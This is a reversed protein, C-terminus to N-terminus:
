RGNELSARLPFVCGHCRPITPGTRASRSIRASRMPFWTERAKGWRRRPPMRCPLGDRLRLRHGPVLGPHGVLAAALAMRGPTKYRDCLADRSVRVCAWRGAADDDSRGRVPVRVARRDALAGDQHGGWARGTRDLAGDRGGPRHAISGPRDARGRSGTWCRRGVSTIAPLHGAICAWTDGEDASAHLAGTGTGRYVGAPDLRDTALAQRLLNLSANRQPLGARLDQWTRGGDRTRWEAEKGEPVSRGAADGHLPVLRLTDADRPHAAPFGFGSPLGAEISRWSRGGDDCRYIGCHNQQHPRDAVGPSQVLCHVCQGHGPCRQHEPLFGARTGRDRPERTAGGDASLFVGGAAIGVRSRREAAPDIVLAHLILGGRGPALLPAVRARAPRGSADLDRRAGDSEAIFAGRRTGVRVLVREAM